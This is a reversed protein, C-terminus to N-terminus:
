LLINTSDKVNKGESEAWKCDMNKLADKNDIRITKHKYNRSDCFHTGNVYSHYKCEKCTM